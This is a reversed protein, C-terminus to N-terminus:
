VVHVSRGPSTAELVFGGSCPARGYDLVIQKAPLEVGFDPWWCADVWTLAAATTLAIRVDGGRGGAVRDEVDIRGPGVAFRRVHRPAGPLGAYGDHSGELLFGDPRPEFRHLMVRPRRGVRFESWFEAQDGDDLTLTNHTASGRSAARRPGAAYEFVGADVIARRGGVSWEFGLVDGHAHGPLHDPGIAGCDVLVLEDGSRAGFYGAEPFAFVPRASARVGATRELADLVTGPAYAMHLGGDNFLSPAADPHTLDALVQAAKTLTRAL